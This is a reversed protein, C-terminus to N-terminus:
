PEALEMVQDRSTLDLILRDTGFEVSVVGKIRVMKGELGGLESVSMGEVGLNTRYRGCARASAVGGGAFEIYLSKGTNSLRVKAVREKITIEEGVQERIAKEEAPAYDDTRKPVKKEAEKANAAKAADGGQLELARREIQERLKQEESQSLTKEEEVPAAAVPAPAEATKKKRKSSKKTENAAVSNTKEASHSSQYWMVGAVAM